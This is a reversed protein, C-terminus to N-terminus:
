RLNIFENSINNKGWGIVYYIALSTQEKFVTMLLTHLYLSECFMWFYNTNRTYQLILNTIICGIKIEFYIILSNIFILYQRSKAKRSKFGCINRFQNSKNENYCVGM